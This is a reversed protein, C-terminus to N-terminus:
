ISGTNVFKLMEETSMGALGLKELTTGGELYNAENVFNLLHIIAKITPTEVGVVDAIYSMPVLGYM